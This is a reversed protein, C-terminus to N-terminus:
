IADKLVSAVDEYPTTFSSQIGIDRSTAGVYVVRGQEQVPQYSFFNSVQGFRSEVLAKDSSTDIGLEEAIQDFVATPSLNVPANPIEGLPALLSAGILVAILTFSVRTTPPLMGTLGYQAALPDAWIGNAPSGSQHSRNPFRAYTFQKPDGIPDGERKAAVVARTAYRGGTVENVYSILQGSIADPLDFHAKRPLLERFDTPRSVLTSYATGSIGPIVPAYYSLDYCLTKAWAASFSAGGRVLEVASPYRAVRPETSPAVPAFPIVGDHVNRIAAYRNSGQGLDSLLVRLGVRWDVFTDKVSIKVPQNDGQILVMGDASVIDAIRLTAM